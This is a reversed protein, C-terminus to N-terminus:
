INDQYDVYKLLEKDDEDDIEGIEADLPKKARIRIHIPTKKEFTLQSKTRRAVVVAVTAIIRAERKAIKHVNTLHQVLNGCKRGKYSCKDCPLDAPRHQAKHYSFRRSNIFSNCEKCHWKM